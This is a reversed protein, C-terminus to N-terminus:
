LANQKEELYWDIYLKLGEKINYKPSYGFKEKAKTIDAWTNVAESFNFPLFVKKAKKCLLNEIEQILGLVTVTESSGLNYIEFGHEIELIQLIGLVIDDIYTYDRFTTGDGFVTIKEGNYIKDVFIPIAMEPRQRPGYVTFPRICAIDMDYLNYYTYCALESVRKTVAYQCLPNSASDTEIFPIREPNGYVSSSSAFIFKRVSYKKCLELLNVTGQANIRFYALPSLVSLRVGAKAALHIVADFRVSGFAADIDELRSIDGSVLSFNRNKIAGKLNNWKRVPSYYFDFNDFCVVRHGEILLRDILNSGIFGAGGTVLINM